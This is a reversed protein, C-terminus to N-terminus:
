TTEEEKGKVQLQVRLRRLVSQGSMTGAKLRGAPRQFVGLSKIFTNPLLTLVTRVGLSNQKRLFPFFCLSCVTYTQALRLYFNKHLLARTNTFCFPQPQGAMLQERDGESLASPTSLTHGYM